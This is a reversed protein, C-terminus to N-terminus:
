IKRCIKKEEKGGKVSFIAKGKKKRKEEGRHLKQRNKKRSKKHENQNYQQPLFFIGGKLSLNKM